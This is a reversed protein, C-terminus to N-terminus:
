KKNQQILRNKDQIHSLKDLETDPISFNEHGEIETEKAHKVATAMVRFIKDDMGAYVVEFLEEIIKAQEEKPLKSVKERFEELTVRM